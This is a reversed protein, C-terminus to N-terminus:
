VWVVEELVVRVRDSCEITPDHTTKPNFHQEFSQASKWFAVNVYTIGAPNGIPLSKMSAPLDAASSVKTLREEIFDPHQPKERKYTALFEAEKDPRVSRRILVIVM